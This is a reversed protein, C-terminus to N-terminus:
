CEGVKGSVLLSCYRSLCRLDSSSPHSGHGGALRGPFVGCPLRSGHFRNLSVGVASFFPTCLKGGELWVRTSSGDTWYSHPVHLREMRGDKTDIMTKLSPSINTWKGLWRTIVQWCNRVTYPILFATLSWCILTIAGQHLASITPSDHAWWFLSQRASQQHEMFIYGFPLLLPPSSVIEGVLPTANSTWRLRLRRRTRLISDNRLRSLNINTWCWLISETPQWSREFMTLTLLSLSNRNWNDAAVYLGGSVCRSLVVAIM